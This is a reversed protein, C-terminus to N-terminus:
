YVGFSLTKKVKHAHILSMQVDGFHPQDPSKHLVCRASINNKRFWVNPNSCQMESDCCDTMAAAHKEEDSMDKREPEKEKRPDDMYNKWIQPFTGHWKKNLVDCTPTNLPDPHFPNSM